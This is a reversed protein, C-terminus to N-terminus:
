NLNAICIGCVVAQFSLVRLYNRKTNDHPIGRAHLKHSLSWLTWSWNDIPNQITYLYALYSFLKWLSVRRGIVIVIKFQNIHSTQFRIVFTFNSLPLADLLLFPWFFLFIPIRARLFYSFFLFKGGFIPFFYSNIKFIKCLLIAVWWGECGDRVVM